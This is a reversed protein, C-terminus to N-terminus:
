ARLMALVDSTLPREGNWTDYSDAAQEVLMGLGDSVQQFGRSEAWAMFPTSENSYILDYASANASIRSIRLDPFDGAWGSSLGNIVIGWERDPISTLGGATLSGRGEFLAVLDMARDPTRNAVHISAPSRDCLPGLIGRMAGGAGLCLIHADTLKWGLNVELDRALGSGDTTHGCVCGQDDRWLTNVAQADIADPTHVEALAFADGKFPATVNLGIGGSAFFDTVVRDFDGVEVLVKQYDIEHGCSEAFARHIEPSKSHDIPNGLVAFRRM